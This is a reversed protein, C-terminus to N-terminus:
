DKKRRRRDALGLAGLIFGIGTAVTATTDQEGTSPLTAQKATSTPITSQTTSTPTTPTGTTNQPVTNPTELKRYIYTVVTEDETYTGNEKGVVKVLVYGDIEKPTTTYGDGVNGKDSDSTRLPNGKEDVYKVVVSGKTVEPEPASTVERYVYTVTTTGETVTESESGQTLSPVLVYIKGNVTIKDLKHDTTDYSTGTLADQTDIVIDAISQGEENHYRVVVNGRVPEYVYTVEITKGSVITGAEGDPAKAILRYLAGDVTTISSAKFDTADYATRPEGDATDVETEKVTTKAIGTTTGSISNGATDKYHVIVSGGKEYSYIVDLAQGSVVVGQEPASNAKHDELYYTVGDKVIKPKKKPTADYATGAKEQTSVEEEPAISTGEQDVYNVVSGSEEYVYTVETKGETVM